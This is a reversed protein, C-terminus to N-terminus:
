PVQAALPGASSGTMAPGFYYLMVDAKGAPPMGVPIAVHGNSATVATGEYTTGDSAVLAADVPQYSSHPGQLVANIVIEERKGRSISRFLLKSRRGPHVNATIGGFPLWADQTAIFAHLSFVYQKPQENPDPSIKTEDLLLRARLEVEEDPGLQVYPREVELDMGDPLGSPILAVAIPQDYDSNIKFSFEYPDYPSGATPYFDTVNEQGANNTLDLDSLVSSHTLVEARLCTHGHNRPRWDFVFDRSSNAPIDQPASDPLPVFTGHDGVGMPTNVFARIIVDTAGVTGRNHVRVKIRNSVAGDPHWHTTDGAGLPPDVGVYNEDGNGPWDIWIDHTGYATPAEWNRIELEVFDGPGWEVEVQLAEPRGGPGPVRGVVRAVIGDYAPYTTSLDLSDGNKMGRSINLGHPNLTTVASRYLAPSWPDITDTVFLGGEEDGAV